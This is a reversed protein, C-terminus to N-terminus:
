RLGLRPEETRRGLAVDLRTQLSLEALRVYKNYEGTKGGTTWQGAYALRPDTDDVFIPQM